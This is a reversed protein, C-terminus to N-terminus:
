IKPKYIMRNELSFIRQSFEGPSLTEMIKDFMNIKASLNDIMNLLEAELFMPLVPSGFEYQGHHALVMHRLLTVEESEAINLQTAVEFIQAQVMSIHGLLKGQTSYEVIVPSHYEDVKCMDHVLIGAILLDRNIQPFLGMLQQAIKAMELTHTALGGVYEHHNKAAAPYTFFDKEYKKFMAKVIQSLHNNQISDIFETIEQQLQKKSISSTRIFDSLSYNSQNYVAIDQVKMQLANKYRIVDGEIEVIRGAKIDDLPLSPRIEWMKGDILGTNDQLVLSLYQSGSASVGQTISQILYPGKVHSKEVLENIKM